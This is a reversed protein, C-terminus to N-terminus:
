LLYSKVVSITRERSAGVWASYLPVTLHQIQDREFFEAFESSALAKELINGGAIFTKANDSYLIKPIGYLNSFRVVAQLFGLV